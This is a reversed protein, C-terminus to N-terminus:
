INAREIFGAAPKEINYRYRGYIIYEFHYITDDAQM